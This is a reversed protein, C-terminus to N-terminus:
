RGLVSAFWNCDQFQATFELLERNIQDVTGVIGSEALSYADEFYGCLSLADPFDYNSRFWSQYMGEALVKGFDPDVLLKEHAKALVYPLVEARSLSPTGVRLLQNAIDYRNSDSMLALEILEYTPNERATIQDDAWQVIDSVELLRLELAERLYSIQDDVSPSHINRAM